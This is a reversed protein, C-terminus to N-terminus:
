ICFSLLKQFHSESFDDDPHCSNFLDMDSTEFRLLYRDMGAAKWARYTDEDREGVSLTIALKTETKIRRILDAMIEKTFYADEGSQLVVTGIKDASFKKCEELIEAETMRYRHVKSNSRAIGCYNCDRKCYNSFEIIGRLYVQGGVNEERVKEANAYLATLDEGSSNLMKIIDAQSHQM